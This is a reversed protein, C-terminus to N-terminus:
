VEGLAAKREADFRARVKDWEGVEAATRMHPVEGLTRAFYLATLANWVIHQWHNLSSEDDYLEGSDLEAMHRLLAGRCTRIAMKPEFNKWNDDDYKLAGFTYVAALDRLASMPILEMREKMKSFRMGNYRPTQDESGSTTM